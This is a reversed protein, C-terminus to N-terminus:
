GKMQKITNMIQSVSSLGHRTLFANVPAGGRRAVEIYGRRLIDLINGTIKVRIDGAIVDKLVAVGIDSIEDKTRENLVILTEPKVYFVLDPHTAPRQEVVPADDKMFLACEVVDGIVIGIEVEKDLASLALRHAQRTEIFTKLTLFSEHASM